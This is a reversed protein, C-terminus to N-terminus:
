AEEKLKNISHKLMSGYYLMAPIAILIYGIKNNFLTAVNPDTFIRISYIGIWVVINIRAVCSLTNDIITFIKHIKEKKKCFFQIPWVICIQVIVTVLFISFVFSDLNALM